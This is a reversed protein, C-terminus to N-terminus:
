LLDSAGAAIVGPLWCILADNDLSHALSKTCVNPLCLTMASVRSNLARGEWGRLHTM